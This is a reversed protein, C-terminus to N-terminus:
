KPPKMGINVVREGKRRLFPIPEEELVGVEFCKTHPNLQPMTDISHTGIRCKNSVVFKNNQIDVPDV